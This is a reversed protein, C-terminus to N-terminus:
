KFQNRPSFFKEPRARAGAMNKADNKAGVAGRAGVRDGVAGRAGVAAIAM